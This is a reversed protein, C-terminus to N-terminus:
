IMFDTNGGVSAPMNPLNSEDGGSKQYVLSIKWLRGPLPYKPFTSTIQNCCAIPMVAESGDFLHCNSQHSIGYWRNKHTREM